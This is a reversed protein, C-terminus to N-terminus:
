CLAVTDDLDHQLFEKDFELQGTKIALAYDLEERTLPRKSEMVWSLVRYALEADKSPLSDIRDMARDYVTLEKNKSETLVTLAAEVDGPSRAGKLSDLFPEVLVFRFYENASTRPM